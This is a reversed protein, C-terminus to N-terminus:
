SGQSHIGSESAMAATLYASGQERSRAANGARAMGLPLRECDTPLTKLGECIVGSGHRSGKHATDTAWSCKQEAATKFRQSTPALFPSVVAMHIM